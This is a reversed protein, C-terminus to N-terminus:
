LLLMNDCNAIFKAEFKAARYSIVCAKNFPLLALSRSHGHLDTRGNSVKRFSIGPFIYFTKAIPYTWAHIPFHVHGIIVARLSSRLTRNKASHSKTQTHFIEPVASRIHAL